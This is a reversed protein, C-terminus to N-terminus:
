KIGFVRDLSLWGAGKLVLIALLTVWLTRQDMIASGSIRDFLSGVTADDAGHFVIDVVSQVVVFGIMGLAALRTFLGLVLLVPLLFEAYTGAHVVLDGLWGVQSSDYGAREMLHPVIQVYAGDTVQFFGAFGDEVKTLAANLYYPALVALFAFRASLGVVGDGGEHLREAVDDHSRLPHFDASRGAAKDYVTDLTTM